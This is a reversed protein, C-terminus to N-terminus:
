TVMTFTIFSFKTVKHLYIYWNGCVHRPKKQSKSFNDNKDNGFTTPGLRTSRIVYVVDKTFTLYLENLSLLVIVSGIVDSFLNTNTVNM